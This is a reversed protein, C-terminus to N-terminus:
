KDLSTDVTVLRVGAVAAALQVAVQAIHLYLILSQHARVPASLTRVSSSHAEKAVVIAATLCLFTRNPYRRLM